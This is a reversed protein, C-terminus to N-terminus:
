RKNKECREERLVQLHDATSLKSEGTVDLILEMSARQSSLLKKNESTVTNQLGLGAKNVLMTSLIGIIPTLSKSKVFFLQPFLNGSYAERHRCVQIRYRKHCTTFIDVKIPDCTGGCCLKRPPIERGNKKNHWYEMGMNVYSIKALRTQVRRGWYFRWPLARWHM